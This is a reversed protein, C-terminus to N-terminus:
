NCGKTSRKPIWLESNGGAPKAKIGASMAKREVVTLKVGSKLTVVQGAARLQELLEGLQEEEQIM